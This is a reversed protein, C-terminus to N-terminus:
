STGAARNFDAIGADWEDVHGRLGRWFEQSRRREFDELSVGQQEVWTFYGLNFIRDRDRVDLELLHQDHVVVELVAGDHAQRQLRQPELHAFQNAAQIPPFAVAVAGLPKFPLGVCAHGAAESLSASATASGGEGAGAIGEKGGSGAM